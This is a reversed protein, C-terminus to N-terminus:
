PPVLKCYRCSAPAGPSRFGRETRIVLRIVMLMVDIGQAVVGHFNEEVVHTGPMRYSDPRDHLGKLIIGITVEATRTIQAHMTERTNLSNWDFLIKPM